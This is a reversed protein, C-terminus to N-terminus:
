SLTVDQHPIKHCELSELLGEGYPFTFMDYPCRDALGKTCYSNIHDMM